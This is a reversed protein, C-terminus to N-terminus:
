PEFSWYLKHPTCLFTLKFQSHSMYLVSNPIISHDVMEGTLLALSGINMQEDEEVVIEEINVYAKMKGEFDSLDPNSEMFQTMHEEKEVNWLEEYQKFHELSQTILTKASSITSSLMSILKAIEKHESVAKFFSKQPVAASGTGLNGSPSALVGSPAALVGSPAALVGSSAALVGSSAALVGSRAALVGSRAALISSQAALVGPGAAQREGGQRWQYVSKHVSLVQQVSSNLASQIEDLGPKLSIHPVALTLKVKFAPRHDVKRKEDTEGYLLASPSSVRRKISELTTRTCRILADLMSRSFHNLLDHAEQYLEKKKQEERQLAIEGPRLDEEVEIVPTLGVSLKPTTKTSEVILKHVQELDNAGGPLLITLLEYTAREVKECSTNLQPAKKKCVAQM